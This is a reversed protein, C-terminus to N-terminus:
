TNARVYGPSGSAEDIADTTADGEWFHELGRVVAEPLIEYEHPVRATTQGEVAHSTGSPSYIVAHELSRYSESPLFKIARAVPPGRTM